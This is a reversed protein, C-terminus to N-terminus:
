CIVVHCFILSLVNLCPASKRLLPLSSLENKDDALAQPERMSIEGLQKVYKRIALEYVFLVKFPSLFIGPYLETECIDSLIRTIPRSRIRLRRLRQSNEIDRAMTPKFNGPPKKQKHKEHDVELKRLWSADSEEFPEDTPVDIANDQPYAQRRVFEVFPVCHIEPTTDGQYYKVLDEMSWAPDLPDDTQRSAGWKYKPRSEADKKEENPEDEGSNKERAEIWAELRDLRDSVLKKHQLEQMIFKPVKKKREALDHRGPGYRYEKQYGEWTLKAAESDSETASSHGSIQNTTEGSNEQAAM